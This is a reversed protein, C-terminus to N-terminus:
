RRIRNRLLWHSLLVAMLPPILLTKLADLTVLVLAAHPMQLGMRLVIVLDAILSLTAPVAVLLAYGFAQRSYLVVLIGSLPLAIVLLGVAGIASLLLPAATRPWGALHQLTEAWRGGTGGCFDAVFYAALWYAASLLLVVFATQVPNRADENM